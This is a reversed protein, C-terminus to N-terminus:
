VSWVAIPFIVGYKACTKYVRGIEIIAWEKLTFILILACVILFGRKM